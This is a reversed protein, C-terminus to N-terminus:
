LLEKGGITEKYIYNLAATLAEQESDNHDCLYFFKVVESIKFVAFSLGKNCYVQQIFWSLCKNKSERNVAWMCRILTELSPEIVEMLAIFDKGPTTDRGAKKVLWKKFGEDM